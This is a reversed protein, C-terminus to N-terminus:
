ASDSSFAGDTTVTSSGATETTVTPVPSRVADSAIEPLTEGRLRTATIGFIDPVSCLTATSMPSRTGGSLEDRHLIPALEVRLGVRGLGRDGDGARPELLGFRRQGVGLQFEIPRRVQELLAREGLLPEVGGLRCQSGGCCRAAQRRRRQLLDLRGQAAGLFDTAVGREGRGRRADDDLAVEVLAASTPGPSLLPTTTTASTLSIFSSAPTESSSAPRRSTPM